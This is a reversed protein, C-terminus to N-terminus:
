HVCTKLSGYDDSADDVGGRGSCGSGKGIGPSSQRPSSSSLCREGGTGSRLCGRGCGATRVSALRVRQSRQLVLLHHRLALVELHIAARSRVAGRLMALVSMLVSTM